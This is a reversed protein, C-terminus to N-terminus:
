PAHPGLRRNCGDVPSDVQRSLPYRADPLSRVVPSGTPSYVVTRRGRLGAVVAHAVGDSTVALPPTPLHATMRSRVAGARAVLVGLAVATRPTPWDSRPWTSAPTPLATSSTTRGPKAPPWSSFAVLVDHRASAPCMAALPEPQLRADKALHVARGADAIRRDLQDRTRTLRQGGGAPIDM